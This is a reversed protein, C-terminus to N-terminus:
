TWTAIKHHKFKESEMCAGTPMRNGSPIQLSLSPWGTQLLAKEVVLWLFTFMPRLRTIM